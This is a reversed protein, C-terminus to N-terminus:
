LMLAIPEYDDEEWLDDHIDPQFYGQDLEITMQQENIKDNSLTFCENAEDEM